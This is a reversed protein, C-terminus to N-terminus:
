HNSISNSFFLVAPIYHSTSIIQKERYKHLMHSNFAILGSVCVCVGWGWVHRGLCGGM